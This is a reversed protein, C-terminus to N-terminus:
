DDSEEEIQKGSEIIQDLMDVCAQYKEIESELYDIKHQMDRMKDTYIKKTDEMKKIVDM